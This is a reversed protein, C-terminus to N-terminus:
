KIREFNLGVHKHGDPATPPSPLPPRADPSRPDDAPGISPRPSVM